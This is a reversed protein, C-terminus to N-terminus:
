KSGKNIIIRRSSILKKQLEGLLIRHEEFKIYYQNNATDNYFTTYGKISGDIKNVIFEDTWQLDFHLSLRKMAYKVKGENEFISKYNKLVDVLDTVFLDLKNVDHLASKIEKKLKEPIISEKNNIKISIKPKPTNISISITVLQFKGDIKYKTKKHIHIDASPDDWNKIEGSGRKHDDIKIIQNKLLAQLSM